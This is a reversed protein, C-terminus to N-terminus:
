RGNARPRGTLDPGDKRRCPSHQQPWTTSLIENTTRFILAFSM